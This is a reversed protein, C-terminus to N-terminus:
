TPEGKEHLHHADGRHGRPAHAMVVVRGALM